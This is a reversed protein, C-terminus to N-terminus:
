PPMDFAGISSLALVATWPSCYESDYLIAEARAKDAVPLEDPPDLLSCLVYLAYATRM